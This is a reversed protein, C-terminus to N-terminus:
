EPRPDHVQWGIKEVIHTMYHEPDDPRPPEGFAWTKDTVDKWPKEVRPAEIERKGRSGVVSVVMSGEDGAESTRSSGVKTSAGSLSSSYGPESGPLDEMLNSAWRPLRSGAGYREMVKQHEYQQVHKVKEVVSAWAAWAAQSPSFGNKKWYTKVFDDRNCNSALAVGEFDFTLDVEYFYPRPPPPM